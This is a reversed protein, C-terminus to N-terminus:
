HLGETIRPQDRLYADLDRLGRASGCEYFRQEVEYGIIEGEASLTRYLEALDAVIGAPIRETVVRRTLVSIGYEIHRMSAHLEGIAHKDYLLPGGDGFRVNSRDWRGNNRFITMVVRRGEHSASWIPALEIPLYSDGYLVFFGADLAGLDAAFRLAGGTGRLSDGEEVYGVQLGYRAGEGVYDRLQGGRYGTIMVVRRVGQRALLSLQHHVFPHGAVEIMAKPIQETHARMRTGLGGALIVCQM